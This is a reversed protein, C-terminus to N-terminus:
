GTVKTEIPEDAPQYLNLAGIVDPTSNLILDAGSHVLEKEQGFGCLVGIAQAGAAKAARMDVTTDGVMLCAEPAVGMQHAAWIIPDPFPKTYQCTHATAVARFYPLLQFQKLFGLTAEHQRASIVALPYLSSITKVMELVGPVLLMNEQHKRAYTNHFVQLVRSFADDLGFRDLLSYMWTAPSEIAMIMRRASLQANRQPLAFRVYRLWAALQAVYQDDTDRLTGDVDFCIARIRSIDVTTVM